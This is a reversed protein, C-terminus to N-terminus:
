PRSFLQSLIAKDTASPSQWFSKEVKSTQLLHLEDVGMCAITQLIRKLMQPRPMAVIMKLPLAPPPPNNLEIGNLCRNEADWIATGTKTM